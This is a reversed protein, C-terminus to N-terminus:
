ETGEKPVAPRDLVVLVEEIASFDVAPRVSISKYVSPGHEVTRVEGIIFGKPYIGDLGSTVVLDGARVDALNSVFEMRLGSGDGTVVGGARSREILAGAGANRDILLQVRAARGAPDGVIRGVVGSPAIVAMDPAVGDRSGRDITVTRFWSSADGAIVDAPLTRQPVAERLQLLQELRQGRMARARMQQIQVGLAANEQRLRLNAAELGRLAVYRHWAGEVGGLVWAV